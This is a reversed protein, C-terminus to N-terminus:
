LVFYITDYETTNTHGSPKM